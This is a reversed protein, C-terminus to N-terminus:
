AANLIMVTPGENHMPLLQTKVNSTATVSGNNVASVDPLAYRTQLPGNDIAVTLGCAYALRPHSEHYLWQRYHM